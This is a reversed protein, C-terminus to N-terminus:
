RCNTKKTPPPPQGSETNHTIKPVPSSPTNPLINLPPKPPKQNLSPAQPPPPPVHYPGSSIHSVAWQLWKMSDVQPVQTRRSSELSPLVWQGSAASSITWQLFKIDNDPPMLYQWSADSWVKWQLWWTVHYQLCKFGNMRPMLCKQGGTDNSVTWQLCKISDGPDSSVM